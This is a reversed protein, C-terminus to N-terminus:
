HEADLLAKLKATGINFGPTFASVKFVGNLAEAAEPALTVSVEEIRLLVEHVDVPRSPLALDFLPVRGVLSDNVVVIGTLVPRKGALDIIFSSLEVRTEGAGLSLGGAHAVEGTVAGLDVVGTTIVFSALTGRRKAALKGPAIAGPAVKLSNLATLFEPALRVTTAGARISDTPAAVATAAAGALSMAVVLTLFMRPMLMM